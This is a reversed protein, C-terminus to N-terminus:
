LSWYQYVDIPRFNGKTKIVENQIKDLLHSPIKTKNTVKKYTSYDKDSWDSNM